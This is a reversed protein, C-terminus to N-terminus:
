DISLQRFSGDYGFLDSNYDQGSPRKTEDSKKKEHDMFWNRHSKLKNKWA